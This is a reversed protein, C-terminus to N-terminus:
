RRAHCTRPHAEHDLTHNSLCARGLEGRPPPDLYSSALTKADGSYGHCFYCRYNYIERGQQHRSASDGATAPCAVLLGIFGPLMSLYIFFRLM